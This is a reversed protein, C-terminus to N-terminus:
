NLRIIPKSAVSLFSENETLKVAVLSIKVLLYALAIAVDVM